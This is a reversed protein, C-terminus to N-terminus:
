NGLGRLVLAILVAQLVAIGVTVWRMLNGERRDVGEKERTDVKKTLEALTLTLTAMAAQLNASTAIQTAMAVQLLGIESDNKRVTGNIAHLRRM